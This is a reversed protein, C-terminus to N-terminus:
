YKMCVSDVNQIHLHRLRIPHIFLMLAVHYLSVIFELRDIHIQRNASIGTLKIHELIIDPHKWTINYDALFSLVAM